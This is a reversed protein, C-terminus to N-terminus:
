TKGMDSVSLKLNKNHATELIEINTKKTLNGALFPPVFKRTKAKEFVSTIKRTKFFDPPIWPYKFKRLILM